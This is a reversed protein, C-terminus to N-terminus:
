AFLHAFESEDGSLWPLIIQSALVGALMANHGYGSLTFMRSERHLPRLRMAGSSHAIYGAYRGSISLPAALPLYHQLSRELLAYAPGGTFARGALAPMQVPAPTEDGFLMAQQGLRLLIEGEQNHVIPTESWGEFSSLPASVVSRVHATLARSVPRTQDLAGTCLIVRKARITKGLQTHLIISDPLPQFSVIKTNEFVQKGMQAAEQCLHTALLYPDAKACGKRSLIAAEVPFAYSGAARQKDIWECELGMRQRLEFEARLKPVLSPSSVHFLGPVVEFGCKQANGGLANSLADVAEMSKQMAAAADKPGMTLLLSSLSHEGDYLMVPAATGSRGHGIINKEVLVCAIGAKALAHFVIAGTVGGGVVAVDTQIADKLYPYTQAIPSNATFFDNEPQM